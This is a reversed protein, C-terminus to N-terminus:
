STNVTELSDLGDGGIVAASCNHKAFSQQACPRLISLSQKSRSDRSGECVLRALCSGKLVRVKRVELWVIEWGGSSCPVQWAVLLLGFARM